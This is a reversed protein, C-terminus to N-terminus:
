GVEAFLKHYIATGQKDELFGPALELAMFAENPVDFECGIGHSSAKEFGFRPYYEPHGLVVVAGAGLNRCSELGSEVLASGIGRNQKEPTVAMPALGYLRADPASDLTVPSFMIHGVLADGDDAVLSILPKATDRLSDVLKAESETPFAAANVAYVDPIDEQREARIAVDQETM